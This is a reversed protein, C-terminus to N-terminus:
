EDGPDDNKTHKFSRLHKREMCAVLRRHLLISLLVPWLSIGLAMLVYVWPVKLLAGFAAAACGMVALFPAATVLLPSITWTGLMTLLGVRWDVVGFMLGQIFFLPAYFVVGKHFYLMQCLVAIILVVVQTGIIPGSEALPINVLEVGKISAALLGYGAVVARFFDIWNYPDKLERMLELRYDLAYEIRIASSKRRRRKPQPESPGPDLAPAKAGGGLRGWRIWPRPIWLLLISLTLIAYDFTM